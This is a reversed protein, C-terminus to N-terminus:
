ESGKTYSYLKTENSIEEFHTDMLLKTKDLLPSVDDKTMGKCSMPPLISIIIKGALFRM